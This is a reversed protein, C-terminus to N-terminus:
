KCKTGTLLPAHGLCSGASVAGAQAAERPLHGTLGVAAVFKIDGVEDLCNM